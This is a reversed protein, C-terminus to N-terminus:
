QKSKRLWVVTGILSPSLVVAIMIILLNTGKPGPLYSGELLDYEADVATLIYEYFMSESPSPEYAPYSSTIVAVLDYEPAVFIHQGRFGSAHYVQAFPYTWWQYGYGYYENDGFQKVHTSGSANVYDSSIIQTGDWLGNRLYLYGFKAMDLPAMSIGGGAYYYGDSDRSWLVSSIGLPNFLNEFAYTLLRQGTADQVIAGLLHSGGGCYVWTEGPEYAMPKDLVYQVCDGSISMQVIDNEPDDYRASWEDWELGSTMTLLHEITIQNKEPSPNAIERDPFYDVMYDQVSGIYGQTLAIGVLASTFSKTVSAVYQLSTNSYAVSPYEEMVMYGNKVVLVSDIDVESEEIYDMLEQLKRPNVGQEEPTSYRWGETPWFDDIQAINSGDYKPAEVGIGPTVAIPNLTLALLLFISILSFSQYKVM